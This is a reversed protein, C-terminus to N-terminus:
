QLAAKDEARWRAASARSGARGSAYYLELRRVGKVRRTSRRVERLLRLLLQENARPGGSAFEAAIGLHMVTVHEINQRAYVAVGVPRGTTADVAFLSQVDPMDRMQIKLRDRDAVIEPAGFKEIADAISESVRDQCSNFFLLAELANRQTAPVYSRFEITATM